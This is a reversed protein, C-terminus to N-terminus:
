CPALWDASHTEQPPPLPNSCLLTKKQQAATNGDFYHLFGRGEANGDDDSDAGVASATRAQSWAPMVNIATARCSPNSTKVWGRRM